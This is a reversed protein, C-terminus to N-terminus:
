YGRAEWCLGNLLYPGGGGLSSQINVSIGFRDWTIAEPWCDTAYSGTSNIGTLQVTRCATPFPTAFTITYPPNNPLFTGFVAGDKEIRGNPFTYSEGNAPDSTPANTIASWNASPGADPDVTNNDVQSQWLRGLTTSTLLAYKPYGGIDTAHTGNFFIPGGAGLWWGWGTADKLVGNVDNGFPGAGGAGRPTFALPPFGDNYSAAGDTIGIQSAKPVAHVYSGGANKAFPEPIYAPVDTYLM